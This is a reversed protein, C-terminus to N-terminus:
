GKVEILASMCNRLGLTISRKYMGRKNVWLVPSNVGVDESGQSWSYNCELSHGSVVCYLPVMGGELLVNRPSQHIVVLMGQSFLFTMCMNYMYMNGCQTCVGKSDNLVKYVGSSDLSLVEIGGVNNQVHGKNVIVEGIM